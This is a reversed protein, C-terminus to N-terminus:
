TELIFLHFLFVIIAIVRLRRNLFINDTKDTHTHRVMVDVGNSDKHEFCVLVVWVLHVFTTVNQMKPRKPRYIIIQPCASSVSVDPSQFPSITVHISWHCAM